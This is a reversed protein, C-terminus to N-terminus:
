SLNNLDKYFYYNKDNSKNAYKNKFCPSTKKQKIFYLIWKKQQLLVAM